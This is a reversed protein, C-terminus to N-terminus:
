VRSYCLYLFAGGAGENLDNNLKIFNAPAGSGEGEIVCLRRIPKGAEIDEIENSGMGLNAMQRAAAGQNHTFCVYIYKGGAGANLDVDIMEFGQPAAGKDNVVCVAAIARPYPSAKPVQEERYCLYIFKGEAGRNLDVGIKTFGTPTPISDSDGSIVRLETIASIANAM